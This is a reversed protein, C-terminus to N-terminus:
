GGHILKTIGQIIPSHPWAFLLCAMSVAALIKPQRILGYRQLSYVPRELLPWVALHTIAVVALVVFLLGIAGTVGNSAGWLILPNPFAFTTGSFPHAAEMLTAVILPSVLALGICGNLTVVFVIKWGDNLEASKRLCWRSLAIFLVDSIFGGVLMAFLPLSEQIVFVWGQSQNPQNWDIYIVLFSALPIWLFGIYRFPVPFLGVLLSVAGIALASFVFKFSFHFLYLQAAKTLCLASGLSFCLSASVAGASFLRAGFLKSLASDAMASIQQLFATQKSLAAQSLDDIDVWLKELRNQLQGEESERLFLAVYLLVVGILGILLHSITALM